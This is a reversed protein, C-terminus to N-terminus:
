AIWEECPQAQHLCETYQNIRNWKWMALSPASLPMTHLRLINIWATGNECPQAQHLCHCPMFGWYISEHLEREVHSPKTCVTAHCSVETYQNMHNVIWMAPSPASLPMSQIMDNVWSPKTCVTTNYRMTNVSVLWEDWPYDRWFM